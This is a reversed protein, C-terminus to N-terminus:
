PEYLYSIFDIHTFIYFKPSSHEEDYEQSLHKLEKEIIYKYFKKLEGLSYIEDLMLNKIYYPYENFKQYDNITPNYVPRLCFKFVIITSKEYDNTTKGGNNKVLTKLVKLSFKDKFNGHFFVKHNKLKNTKIALTKELDYDIM